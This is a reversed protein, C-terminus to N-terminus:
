AAPGGRIVFVHEKPDLKAVRPAGKGVLVFVCLAAGDEVGFGRVTEEPSGPRQVEIWVDPFLRLM